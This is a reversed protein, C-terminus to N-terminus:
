AAGCMRGLTIAWGFADHSHIAALKRLCNSIGAGLIPEAAALTAARAAAECKEAHYVIAAKAQELEQREGRSCNCASM